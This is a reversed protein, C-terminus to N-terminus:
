AEGPSGDIDRKVQRVVSLINDSSVVDIQTEEIVLRYMRLQQCDSSLALILLEPYQYLLHSCIGPINGSEPLTVVVIDAQSDEVAILLEIPELVAEVVRVDEQEILLKELFTRASEPQNAMLVKVARSM